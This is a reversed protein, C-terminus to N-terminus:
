PEKRSPRLEAIQIKWLSFGVECREDQAALECTCGSPRRTVHDHFLSLGIRSLALLRSRTPRPNM